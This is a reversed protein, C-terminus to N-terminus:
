RVSEVLIDIRLRATRAGPRSALWVIVYNQGVHGFALMRAFGSSAAMTAVCVDPSGSPTDPPLIKM